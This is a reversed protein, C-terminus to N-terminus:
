AAGHLVLVGGDHEFSWAYPVVLRWAGVPLARLGSEARSYVSRGPFAARRRHLEILLSLDGGQSVCGRVVGAAECEEFLVIDDIHFKAGNYQMAKHSRPCVCVCVKDCSVRM